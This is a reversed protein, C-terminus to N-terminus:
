KTGSEGARVSQDVLKRSLEASNVRYQGKAYLAALEAVRNDRQRNDLSNAQSLQTSLGSIEVSDGDHGSVKHGALTGGGTQPTSQTRGTELPNSGQLADNQIKM